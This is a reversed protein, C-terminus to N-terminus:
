KQRKKLEYLVLAREEETQFQVDSAELKELQLSLALRQKKITKWKEEVAHRQLAANALQPQLRNQESTLKRLRMERFRFGAPDLASTEQLSAAIANEQEAIALQRSRLDDRMRFESARTHELARLQADLVSLAKRLSDANSM